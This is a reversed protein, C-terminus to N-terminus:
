RMLYISLYISIYLVWMYSIAIAILEEVQEMIKEDCANDAQEDETEGDDGSNSTLDNMPLCKLFSHLLSLSQEEQEFIVGRQTTLVAVSLYVPMSPHSVLLVDLLRSAVRVDVLDQSFWCTIWHLCFIPSPLLAMMGNDTQTQSSLHQYLHVDVLSLLSWVAQGVLTDLVVRHDKGRLADRLHCPALKGLVLNTLSPSELNIMLLATFDQLGSYFQYRKDDDCNEQETSNDTGVVTSDDAPDATNSSLGITNDDIENNAKEEDPPKM